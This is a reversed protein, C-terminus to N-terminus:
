APDASLRAVLDPCKERIKQQLDAKWDAVRLDAAIPKRTQAFFTFGTWNEDRALELVRPTCFKNGVSLNGVKAFDSGDWSGKEVVFDGGGWGIKGKPLPRWM